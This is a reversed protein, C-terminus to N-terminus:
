EEHKVWYTGAPLDRISPAQIIENTKVDLAQGGRLLHRIAIRDNVKNDGHLPLIIGPPNTATSFQTTSDTM